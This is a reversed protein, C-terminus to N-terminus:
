RELTIKGAGYSRAEGPAQIPQDDRETGQWYRWSERRCREVFGEPSSTTTM